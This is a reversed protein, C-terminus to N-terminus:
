RLPWAKAFLHLEGTALHTRSGRQPGVVILYYTEVLIHQSLELISYCLFPWCYSLVELLFLLMACGLLGDVVSHLLLLLLQLHARGDQLPPPVRGSTPHPPRLRLHGREGPYDGAATLLDVLRLRSYHEVARVTPDLEKVHNGTYSRISKM